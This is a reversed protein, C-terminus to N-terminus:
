MGTREGLSPIDSSHTSSQTNLYRSSVSRSLTNQRSSASRRKSASRGALLNSLISPSRACIYAHFSSVTFVGLQNLTSKTAKSVHTLLNKPNPLEQVQLSAMYCRLRFQECHLRELNAEWQGIQETLTQRSAADAVVTLQLEAMHKLKADQLLLSSLAIIQSFFCFSFVCVSLSEAVLSITLLVFTNM